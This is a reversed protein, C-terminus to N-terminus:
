VTLPMSRNPLTVSVNSINVVGIAGNAFPTASSTIQLMLEDGEGVTYAIEAIDVTVTHSFGNLTVPIPTVVNGLVKGTTKDVVQAYVAKSTGLGQYTMTVAPAGVVQTGAALAGAPIDVNIANRAESGNPLNAPFDGAGPGSGGLIPVIGLLGGKSTTVVSPLDNFGDQFPMADSTFGAGKQDFWRFTPLEDARTGEGKVYQDLWALTSVNMAATQAASYPDTCEGHGTCAWVMKLPVGNGNALIREASLTGQDLPFLVDVIGRIMLTPATIQSLDPNTANLTSKGWPGVWNLLMGTIFPVYLPPHVRSGSTVLGLITLGGYATKFVSEPYISSIMTDWGDVPVMADIRKDAAAAFQLAAGYSGGVLGVKPDGPANLTAQTKEAIWTTLASVDKGEFDPDALHVEGGSAYRGRPDYTIVNYGQPRLQGPGPVEDKLAYLALPNIVAPRQFGSGIIATPATEGAKLGDAPFFNTSIKTGDFSTVDYTFALPTDGPALDAVNVAVTLVASSGILPALLDSLLPADQLFDIIPKFVLGGILPLGTLTQNFATIERIRIGIDEAGRSGGDDLWTAYPLFTFLSLDGQTFLVEVKGGKSGALPELSLVAGERTTSAIAVGTIVGNLGPAAPEAFPLISGGYEITGDTVSRTNGVPLSSRVQELAALEAAETAAIIEPREAGDVNWAESPNRRAAALTAWALPSDTPIVTNESAADAGSVGDTDVATMAAAPAAVPEPVPTAPVEVRVISSNPEEAPSMLATTDPATVSTRPLIDPAVPETRSTESAVQVPFSPEAFQEPAAAVDEIPPTAEAPAPIRPVPVRSRDPRAPSAIDLESDNADDQPRVTRGTNGVSSGASDETAAKRGKAASGTGSDSSGARSESAAGPGTDQSQGSADAWAVGTGALLGSGVGLAIALGGVRGVFWSAGM